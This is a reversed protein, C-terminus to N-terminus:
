DAVMVAIKFPAEFVAVTLRTAGTIEVRAQLGVLTLEPADLVQVTM